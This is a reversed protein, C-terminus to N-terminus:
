KTAGLDQKEVQNFELEVPTDRGFISLMAKFHQREHIIEIVEGEFDKFPGSLVIIKDGVATDGISELIPKWIWERETKASSLLKLKLVKPDLWNVSKRMVRIDSDIVIKEPPLYGEGLILFIVPCCKHLPVTLCLYPM